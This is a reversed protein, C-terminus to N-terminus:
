DRWYRGFLPGFSFPGAVVYSNGIILRSIFVAATGKAFDLVGSLLGIKFGAARSVNTAGINGSGYQRVDVHAMRKALILGFPISGLLYGIIMGAIYRFILSVAIM